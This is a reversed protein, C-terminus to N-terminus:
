LSNIGGLYIVQGTVFNSKDDIFFDIVNSVDNFNGFRKIAQRQILDDLKNKPLTRILDTVVPSPGIANVTIGYEGLERAAIETFNAIAAKSAAYVAEGALRLPSAISVFNVIRGKKQNIMIKSAERLFLFTGFFNTDFIRKATSLPTLTLHNMSAIGANNLLVNISGINRSVDKVLKIVAKEDAVDLIYHKYNKHKFDTDNRSCGIVVFEKKLYYECLYRGIGRSAGTIIMVNNKM